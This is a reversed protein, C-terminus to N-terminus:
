GRAPAGRGAGGARPRAPGSPFLLGPGLLRECAPRLFAGGAAQEGSPPVSPDTAVICSVLLAQTVHRRDAEAIAAVDVPLAKDGAPNATGVLDTLLNGYQSLILAYAARGIMRNAYAQCAHFLGDRLALVGATRGAMATIAQQSEGKGTIGASVGSTAANASAEFSHGFAIAWDPSPELCVIRQGDMERVTLLHDNGAPILTAAIGGSTQLPVPRSLQQETCGLLPLALLLLCSWRM